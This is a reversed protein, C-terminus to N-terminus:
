ERSCVSGGPPIEAYFEAILFTSIAAILNYNEYVFLINSISIM